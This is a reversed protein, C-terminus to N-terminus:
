RRRSPASKWRTAEGKGSVWGTVVDWIGEIDRPEIVVTLLRRSGDTPGIMLQRGRVKDRFFAPSGWLVELVDDPSIGRVALKEQVQPSIRMEDIFRTSM